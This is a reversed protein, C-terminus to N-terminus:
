WPPRRGERPFYLRRAVIYSPQCLPLYLYFGTIIVLRPMHWWHLDCWKRLIKLIIDLVWALFIVSARCFNGLLLIKKGKKRERVPSAM